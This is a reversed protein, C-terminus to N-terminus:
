FGILAVVLVLTFILALLTSLIGLLLRVIINRARWARSALYGFLLVLLLLILVGVFDFIM